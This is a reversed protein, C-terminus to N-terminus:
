LNSSGEVGKDKLIHNFLQKAASVVGKESLHVGDFLDDEEFNFGFCRIQHTKGLEAIINNLENIKENM